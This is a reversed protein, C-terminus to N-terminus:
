ATAGQTEALEMALADLSDSVHRLLAECAFAQRSADFDASVSLGELISAVGDITAAYRKTRDSLSETAM